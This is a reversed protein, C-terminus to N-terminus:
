KGVGKVLLIQCHGGSVLLGIFPFETQLSQDNTELKLASLDDLSQLQPRALLVHAELHHVGVFPKQFTESLKRGERAGVRLCLELGPGVTAAFADV